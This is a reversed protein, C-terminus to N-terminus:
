FEITTVAPRQSSHYKGFSRAPIGLTVDCQVGLQPLNVGDAGFLGIAKPLKHRDKPQISL